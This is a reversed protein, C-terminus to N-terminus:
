FAITTSNGIGKISIYNSKRVISNERGNAYDFILQGHSKLKYKLIELDYNALEGITNINIKQLKPLTARISRWSTTAM